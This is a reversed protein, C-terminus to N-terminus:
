AFGLGTLGLGLLVLSGPTPVTVTVLSTQTWTLDQASVEEIENPSNIDIWGENWGIIARQYTM